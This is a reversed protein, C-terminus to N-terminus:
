VDDVPPDHDLWNLESDAMFVNPWNVDKESLGAFGLVLGCIATAADMSPDEIMAKLADDFGVPKRPARATEALLWKHFPYLLENENLVARCSFLIIKQAALNSLYANGKKKGEGFMWKWALIQAGFRKRRGEKERAPFASAAALLSGLGSLRSHLIVSDKFAFRAPDSGREAVKKLFDVSVIKCDVYGGEYGCIDWVSFALTGAEKRKRYEGEDVILAVDIDSDPKAFGHAISGGLLIAQVSLDDKTRDIFIDIAEQHHKEM